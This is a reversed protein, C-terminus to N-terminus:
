RRPLANSSQLSAKHDRNCPFWPCGNGGTWKSEVYRAEGVFVYLCTIGMLYKRATSIAEIGRRIFAPSSCNNTSFPLCRHVRSQGGRM